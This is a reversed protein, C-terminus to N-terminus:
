ATSPRQRRRGLFGLGALAPVLLLIPAPLPIPAPEGELLAWEEFTADATQPVGLQTYMVINDTAAVGAFVSTPVLFRLDARGNGSGILGYDLEVVNDGLDWLPNLAPNFNGATDDYLWTDDTNFSSDSTSFLQLANLSILSSPTNEGLDLALQYYGTGGVNLFAVDMVDQLTISHTWVGHKEDYQYESNTRDTNYGTETGNNQIRLFPHWTGTGTSVDYNELTSFIAGNVVASGGGTLDVTAAMSSSAVLAAVFAPVLRGAANRLHSM